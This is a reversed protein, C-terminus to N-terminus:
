LSMVFFAVGVGVCSFRIVTVLNGSEVSGFAMWVTVCVCMVVGSWVKMMPMYFIHSISVRIFTIWYKNRQSHTNTQTHTQTDMKKTQKFM